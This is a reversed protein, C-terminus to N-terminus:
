SPTDLPVNESAVLRPVPVSYEIFIPPVTSSYAMKSAASLLEVMVSINSLTPLPPAFMGVVSAVRTAPM